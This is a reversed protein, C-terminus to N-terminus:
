KDNKTSLKKIYKEKYWEWRDKIDQEAYSAAIKLNEIAIEYKEKKGDPSLADRHFFGHSCDYRVIPYWKGDINTEYQFVIDILKGNQTKLRVRLRDYGLKDLNKTFEKEPM